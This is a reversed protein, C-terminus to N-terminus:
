LKIISKSDLVFFKVYKIVKAKMVCLCQDTETCTFMELILTRLTRLPRKIKPPKKLPDHSSYFICIM